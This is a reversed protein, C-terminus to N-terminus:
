HCSEGDGELCLFLSVPFLKTPYSALIKSRFSPCTNKSKKRKYEIRNRERSALSSFTKKVSEGSSVTTSFLVCGNYLHLMGRFIFIRRYNLGQKLKLWNGCDILLRNLQKNTVIVLCHQYIRERTYITGFFFKFKNSRNVTQSSFGRFSRTITM